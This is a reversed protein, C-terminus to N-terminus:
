KFFRKFKDISKKICDKKQNNKINRIGLFSWIEFCFIFGITNKIIDKIM